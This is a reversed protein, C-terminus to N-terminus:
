VLSELYGGLKNLVISSKIALTLREKLLSLAYYLREDEKNSLLLPELLELKSRLYAFHADKQNEYSGIYRSIGTGNNCQATFKKNKKHYRVGLLYDGRQAQRSVLFNNINKPLFICTNESYLNSGDSLLDKDLARGEWTQKEMWIKFYSFTLWEECVKTNNYSFYINEGKYCRTLMNAWTQYYPCRWVIKGDTDRKIVPYNADNIGVGCVLRV